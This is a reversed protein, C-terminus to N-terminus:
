DNIQSLYIEVTTIIKNIHNRATIVFLIVCAICLGMIIWHERLGTLISMAIFLVIHTRAYSYERSLMDLSTAGSKKAAVFKDYSVWGFVKKLIPEIVSAGLRFIIYGVEYAIALAVVTLLIELGINELSAIRLILDAVEDLFLFIISGTLVLGPMLINIISYFPVKIDM